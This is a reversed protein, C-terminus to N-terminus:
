LHFITFLTAYCDYFKASYLHASIMKLIDVGNNAKEIRKVIITSDVSGAKKRSKSAAKRASTSTTSKIKGPSHSKSTGKAKVKRLDDIEHTIEEVLVTDQEVDSEGPFDSSPNWDPDSTPSKERAKGKDKVTNVDQTSSLVTPPPRPHSLRGAELSPIHSTSLSVDAVGSTSNLASDLFAPTTFKLDLLQYSNIRVRQFVWLLTQLYLILNHIM